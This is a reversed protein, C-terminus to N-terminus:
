SCTKKQFVKKSILHKIGFNSGSEEDSVIALAFTYKPKFGSDLIAKGAFISSVISQGNDESGRGYIRGGEVVAEFPKTRWLREDGAPVVDLHTVIWITRDLVGKIKAVINPRKGVREDVADFREVVDFDELYDMLFDAKEEEGEGGFDPSIAKIEILKSLLQVMENRKKELDKLM